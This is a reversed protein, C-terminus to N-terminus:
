GNAVQRAALEAAEADALGDAMLRAEDFQRQLDALKPHGEPHRKAIEALLAEARDLSHARLLYRLAMLKLTIADRWGGCKRLAKYHAETAQPDRAKAALRMQFSLIRQRYFERRSPAALDLCRAFEAARTAPDEANCATFFHYAASGDLKHHMQDLIGPDMPGAGVARVIAKLLGGEMLLGGPTHANGILPLQTIPGFRTLREMHPGDFKNAPCYIVYAEAHAPTLSNIDGLPGTWDEGLAFDFRKEWPVKAPDLTTQPSIALVVSGPVFTSYALAGFGGMSLGYFIVRIKDRAIDAFAPSDFFRVLDPKLFWDPARAKISLVSWGHKALEHVGWGLRNEAKHKPLGAHDFTIWLTQDGPVHDLLYNDLAIPAAKPAPHYAM